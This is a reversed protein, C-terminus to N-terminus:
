LSYNATRMASSRYHVTLVHSFVLSVLWSIVLGAISQAMLWVYFGIAMPTGIGAFALGADSQECNNMQRFLILILEAHPLMAFVIVALGPSRACAFALWTVLLHSTVPFAFRLLEPLLTPWPLDLDRRYAIKGTAHAMMDFTIPALFLNLVISFLAAKPVAHEKLGLTILLMLAAAVAVLSWRMSPRWSPFRILFQDVVRFPWLLRGYAIALANRDHHIVPSLRRAERLADRAESPRGTQLTITGLALHAGPQEPNISLAELISKKAERYHGLRTMLKGHLLLSPVHTPDLSLSQQLVIRGEHLRNRLMLLEALWCFYTADQELRLAERIAEEAQDILGQNHRVYSLVYYAFAFEPELGLASCIDHDADRPRRLHLLCSARMALAPASNPVDALEDTFADLAERYRRFEFLQM